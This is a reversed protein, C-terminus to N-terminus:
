SRLQYWDRQDTIVQELSRGHDETQVAPAQFYVNKRVPHRVVQAHHAKSKAPQNALGISPSLVFALSAAAIVVPAALKSVRKIMKKVEKRCANDM